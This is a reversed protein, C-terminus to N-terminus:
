VPTGTRSTAIRSSPTWDRGHSRSKEVKTDPDTADRVGKLDAADVLKGDTGATVEAAPSAYRDDIAEKVTLPSMIKAAETGAIAEAQDAFDPVTASGAGDQARRAGQHRHGVGQGIRHWDIALYGM